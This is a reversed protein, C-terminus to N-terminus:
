MWDTDAFTLFFDNYALTESEPSYPILIISYNNKRKIFGATKLAETCYCAESLQFHMSKVRRRQCYEILLKLARLQDELSSDICFDVIAVAKYEFRIAIYGLATEESAFKLFVYQDTPPAFFRWQIFRTDRVAMVPHARKISDFTFEEELDNQRLTKLSYGRTNIKRFHFSKYWAIAPKLFFSLVPHFVDGETPRRAFFLSTLPFSYTALPGFARAGANLLPKLAMINPFGILFEYRTRLYEHLRKQMSNFIRQRRYDPHVMGDIAQGIRIVRGHYWIRMPMVVYSAVVADTSPDIALHIDAQGSPNNEYLWEFKRTSKGPYVARYLREVEKFRSSQKIIFDVTNKM